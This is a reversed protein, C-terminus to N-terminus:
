DDDTTCTHSNIRDIRRGPNRRLYLSVLSVVLVLEYSALHYFRIINLVVDDEPAEEPEVYLSCDLVDGPNVRIYDRRGTDDKLRM